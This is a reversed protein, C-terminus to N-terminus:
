ESLPIASTLREGLASQALFDRMMTSVEFYTGLKVTASAGPWSAWVYGDVLSFIVDGRPESKWSDDYRNELREM